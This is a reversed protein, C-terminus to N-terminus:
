KDGNVQDKLHKAPKFVPAKKAPITIAAGTSPNRGQREARETVKFNGFGAIHVAKGATMKEGIVEFTTNVTLETDKVSLETRDAVDHIIEKKSVTNESM